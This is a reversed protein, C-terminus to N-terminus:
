GKQWVPSQIPSSETCLSLIDLWKPQVVKNNQLLHPHDRKASCLSNDHTLPAATAAQTCGRLESCKTQM